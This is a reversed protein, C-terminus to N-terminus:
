KEKLQNIGDRVGEVLSKKYKLCYEELIRKTEESIRVTIKYPKPENTPRGLKKVDM